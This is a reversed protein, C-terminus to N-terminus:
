TITLTVTVNQPQGPQVGATVQKTVENTLISYGGSAIHARVRVHITQGSNVSYTTSYSTTSAPVTATPTSANDPITSTSLFVEVFDVADGGTLPVSQCPSLVVGNVSVCGTTPLTYSIALPASVAAQAPVTAVLALALGALLSAFRKM